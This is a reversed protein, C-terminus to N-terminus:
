FCIFPPIISYQFSPTNSVEMMGNVSPSGYPCEMKGNNM